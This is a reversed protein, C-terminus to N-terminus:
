KGEASRKPFAKRSADPVVRALQVVGLDIVADDTDRVTRQPTLLPSASRRDGRLAHLIPADIAISPMGDVGLSLEGHPGDSSCNAVNSLSRGEDSRIDCFCVSTVRAEVVLMTPVGRLQLNTVLDEEIPAVNYCTRGDCVRDFSARDTGPGRLLAKAWRM